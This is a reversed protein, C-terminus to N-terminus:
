PTPMASSPHQVSPQFSPRPVTAIILRAGDSQRQDIVWQGGPQMAFCTPPDEVSEREACSAAARRLDQVDRLDRNAGEPAIFLAGLAVVTFIVATATLRGQRGLLHMHRNIESDDGYYSTRLMVLCRCLWSTLTASGVTILATQAAIM